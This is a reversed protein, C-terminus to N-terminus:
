KERGAPMLNAPLPPRRGWDTENYNTALYELLPNEIEPPIEWLNQTRQMWRILGLWYERDGRLSTVLKHSHCGGCQAAVLEWNPAIKLGTDPDIKDDAHATAALVLTLLLAAAVRM